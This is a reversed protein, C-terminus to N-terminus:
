YYDNLITKSLLRSITKMQFDSCGCYGGFKSPQRAGECLGTELCELSAVGTIGNRRSARM